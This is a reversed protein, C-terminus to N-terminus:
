EVRVELVLHAFNPQLQLNKEAKSCGLYQAQTHYRQRGLTVYRLSSRGLPNKPNLFRLLSRDKAITSNVKVTTTRIKTPALLFLFLFCAMLLLSGCLFANEPDLCVKVYPAVSVLVAALSDSFPCFLFM